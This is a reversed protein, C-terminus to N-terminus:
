CVQLAFAGLGHWRMLEEYMAQQVEKPYTQAETLDVQYSKAREVEAKVAEDAVTILGACRPEM